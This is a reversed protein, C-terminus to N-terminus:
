PRRDPTRTWSVWAERMGQQMGAAIRRPAEEVPDRGFAGRGRGPRGRQPLFTHSGIIRGAAVYPGKTGPKQQELRVMMLGDAQMRELLRERDSSEWYEGEDEISLGEFRPRLTRFLEVTAVHTEPGAFQWTGRRNAGAAAM